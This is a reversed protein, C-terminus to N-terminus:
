KPAKSFADLVTSTPNSLCYDLVADAKASASEVDISSEGKGALLYGQYFAISVARGQDNGAMVEKCTVKTVDAPASAPPADDAFVPSAAAVFFGLITPAFVNM